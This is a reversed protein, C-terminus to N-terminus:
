LQSPWLARSPLKEFSESVFKFDIDLAQSFYVTSIANDKITPWIAPFRDKAFHAQSGFMQEARMRKRTEGPQLDPM